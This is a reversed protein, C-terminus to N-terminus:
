NGSTVEQYEQYPACINRFPCSACARTGLGTPKFDGAEVQRSVHVLTSTFKEIDAEDPPTMAEPWYYPTKTRVIWDLQMADPQYGLDRAGLWYGTMNFRYRGASPRSGTTKLDRLINVIGFQIATMDHQDVADLIGSFPVDNVELQFPAEVLVPTEYTPLIDREFVAEVSNPPPLATSQGRLLHEAFDHAAIGTAQAESEVGRELLVYTFWWQLRCALFSNVSSASFVVPRM